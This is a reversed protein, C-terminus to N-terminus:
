GGDEEDQGGRADEGEQFPDEPASTEPMSQGLPQRRFAAFGLVACTVMNGLMIFLTLVLGFTSSTAPKTSPGTVLGIVCSIVFLLDVAVLILLPCGCGRKLTM